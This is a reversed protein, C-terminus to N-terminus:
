DIRDGGSKKDAASGEEASARESIETLTRGIKGLWRSGIRKVQTALEASTVLPETAKVETQGETPKDFAAISRAFREASAEAQKRWIATREGVSALRALAEDRGRVLKEESDSLFKESRSLAEAGRQILAEPSGGLERFKALKAQLIERAQAGKGTLALREGIRTVFDAPAGTTDSSEGNETRPESSKLKEASGKLEQRVYEFNARGGAIIKELAPLESETIKIAERRPAEIEEFAWGRRERRDTAEKNPPVGTETDLPNESGGTPAGRETDRTAM